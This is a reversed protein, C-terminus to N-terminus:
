FNKLHVVVEGGRRYLNACMPRFWSKRYLFFTDASHCKVVGWVEIYDGEDMDVVDNKPLYVLMNITGEEITVYDDHVREVTGAVKTVGKAYKKMVEKARLPNNDTTTYADDAAQFDFYKGNSVYFCQFAYILVWVSVLIFDVRIKKKKTVVNDM